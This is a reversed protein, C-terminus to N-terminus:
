ENLASNEPLTRWDMAAMRALLSKPHLWPPLQPTPLSVQTTFCTLGRGTLLDPLAAFRPVLYFAAGAPSCLIVATDKEPRTAVWQRLWKVFHGPLDEFGAIAIALIDCPAALEIAENFFQSNELEAFSWNDRHVEVDSAWKGILDGILQNAASGLAPHDSAVVIQLPEPSEARHLLVFPQFARENM